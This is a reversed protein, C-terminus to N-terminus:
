LKRNKRSDRFRNWDRNHKKCAMADSIGLYEEFLPNLGLKM